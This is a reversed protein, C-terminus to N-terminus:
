SENGLFEAESEPWKPGSIFYNGFLTKKLRLTTGPMPAERRAKPPVIVWRDGNDMVVWFRQSGLMGSSKVVGQRAWPEKKEKVVMTGRTLAQKLGAIALDYCQLRADGATISECALIAEVRPELKDKATAVAPASLLAIGVVICVRNPMANGRLDVALM